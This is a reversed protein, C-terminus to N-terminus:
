CSTQIVNLFSTEHKKSQSLFVPWGVLTVLCTGQTLILFTDQRFQEPNRSGRGHKCRIQKAKRQSTWLTKGGKGAPPDEKGVFEFRTCIRCVLFRSGRARPLNVKWGKKCECYILVECNSASQWNKGCWNMGYLESALTMLWGYEKKQNILHPIDMWRLGGIEWGDRQQKHIGLYCSHNKKHSEFSINRSM